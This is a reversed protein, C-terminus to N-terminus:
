HAGRPPRRRGFIVLMSFLPLPHHGGTGGTRFSGCHAGGHRRILHGVPALLLLLLCRPSAVSPSSPSTVRSRSKFRRCAVSAVYTQLCIFCKFCADSACAFVGSFCKFGKWVYAVDLYFMQLMHTFCICSGSLCVQLMHIFFFYYFMPFLLKCYVHVVMAVYVVDQNVNAIDKHFV